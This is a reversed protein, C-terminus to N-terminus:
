VREPNESDDAWNAPNNEIYARINAHDREDRIVHEYYNRQWIPHAPHVGIFNAGKTVTAKMGAIMAGITGSRLHPRAHTESRSTPLAALKRAQADHDIVVIIHVHNPMIVFDDFVFEPRMLPTIELEEAVICGIPSLNPVGDVIRGLICRRQHTVITIFYAGGASYDFDPLRILRRHPIPAETM